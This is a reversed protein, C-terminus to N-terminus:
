SRRRAGSGSVTTAFIVILDVLFFDTVSMVDDGSNGESDPYDADSFLIVNCM